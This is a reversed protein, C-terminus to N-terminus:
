VQDSFDFVLEGEDEVDDESSGEGEDSLPFYPPLTWAIKIM